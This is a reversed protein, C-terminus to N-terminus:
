LSGELLQAVAGTGSVNRQARVQTAQAPRVTDPEFGGSPLLVNVIASVQLYAGPAIKTSEAEFRALENFDPGIAGSVSQLQDLVPLLDRLDNVSNQGSQEAIQTGVTGLQALGTILKGLQKNEGALVGIAPSITAIGNAITSRGANLKRTLNEIASLANDIVVRGGAVTGVAGDITKLFSRVQSQNGNFTNNLEHIIVQLQNLGGGNLVLSLAAFTDEVSAATSTDAAGITDGPKIFQMTGHAGTPSSSIPETLLVYEDGLPNDFRVQATTGEPLKVDSNIALTLNAQFNQATIASVQGVVQAGIRVQADAPLNLVDGFLAQIPYTNGGNATVKPLSQLSLACGGLLVACVAALAPAVRKM